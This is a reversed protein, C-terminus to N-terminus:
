NLGKFTDQLRRAAVATLETSCVLQKEHLVPAGQLDQRESKLTCDTFIPAGSMCPAANGCVGVGSMAAGGGDM